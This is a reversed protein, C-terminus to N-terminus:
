STIGAATSRVCSGCRPWSRWRSELWSARWPRTLPSRLTVFMPIPGRLIPKLNAPVIKAMLILEKGFPKWSGMSIFRVLATRNGLPGNGANAQLKRLQAALEEAEREARELADDRKEKERALSEEMVAKKIAENQAALAEVPNGSRTTSKMSEM